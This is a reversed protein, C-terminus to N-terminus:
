LDGKKFKDEPNKIVYKVFREDCAGFRSLNERCENVL